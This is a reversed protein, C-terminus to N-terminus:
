AYLFLVEFKKERFVEYYPSAEAAERNPAVLYYIEKQAEPMRSAYDTLSTTKGAETHSSESRLLRALAERHQWDNAVGEKLCHGHEAFFSTTNRRTLRQKKRSGSSCASPSCM